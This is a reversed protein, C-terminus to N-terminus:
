DGPLLARADDLRLGTATLLDVLYPRLSGLTRRDGPPGDPLIAAPELHRAIESLGQRAVPQQAVDRMSDDLVQVFPVIRAVVDAIEPRPRGDRLIWEIRRAVIRLNRTALDLGSLMTRQRELDFRSRRVIPSVRAIALGSDVSATWAEVLPQTSRARSLARAAADAEGDRLASSLERLVAIHEALLRRGDRLATRRPDRPIVATALLAFAGGVLGDVTRVFPGGDPAPVLMVLSCQVAAAIAFAANPSLFRAVALTLALAVAFQVLGSGALLLLVEALAIGLTMAVATELVRVPRADRVFGLATIAVLASILPQQHGLVFVSFAYAAVATATIQLIAPLSDRVRVLGAAVRTPPGPATTM